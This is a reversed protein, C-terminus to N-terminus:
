VHNGDIKILCIGGNNQPMNTIIQSESGDTKNVLIVDNGNRKKSARHEYGSIREKEITEWTDKITPFAEKFWTQNREVTSMLIEDLYWYIKNYIACEPLESKCQDTWEDMANENLSVDLPMYKYLPVNSKGDKQIFHLIMGRNRERNPEECFEQRSNYEKFRTEVFDCVDMNCCELQIQIQIWYAESPIGNMDRNYINKIELMRGYLPSDANTVIGDPSAGIFPYKAHQMCGFEEVKAGTMKEYILSTLPEYKVGWHLSNDTNVWKNETYGFDLPKCKDYIFRNRQADTNLVQWLNSATMMNYRCKYWEPTRQKPMSENLIRLEDIKKTLNTKVEDESLRLHECHYNYKCHDLSRLPIKSTESTEKNEFYIQAHIEVLEMVSNYDTEKCIDADQLNQFLVNTVDNVLEEHFEPKAMKLIDTKLYEETLEHISTILDDMETEELNEYFPTDVESECESDTEVESESSSEVESDSTKSKYVSDYIEFM